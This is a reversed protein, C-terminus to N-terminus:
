QTRAGPYGCPAGTSRPEPGTKKRRRGRQRAGGVWTARLGRTAAPLFAEGEASKEEAEQDTVMLGKADDMIVRVLADEEVTNEEDSACQTMCALDVSAENEPPVKEEESDVVECSFGAAIADEEAKDKVAALQREVEEKVDAANGKEQSGKDKQKADRQKRRM